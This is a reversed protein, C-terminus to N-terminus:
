VLFLHIWLAAFEQKEDIVFICNDIFEVATGKKQPHGICIWNIQPNIFIPIDIDNIRFSGSKQIYSESDVVKLFGKSSMPPTYGIKQAKSLGCFGNLQVVRSDIVSLTLTNLAIDFDIENLWLITYFSYENERYIVHKQECCGSYDVIFKMM